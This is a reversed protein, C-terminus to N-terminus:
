RPLFFFQQINDNVITVSAQTITWNLLLSKYVCRDCSCSLRSLNRVTPLYVTEVYCAGRRLVGLDKQGPEGTASSLNTVPFLM